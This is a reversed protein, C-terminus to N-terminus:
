YDREIANILKIENNIDNEEIKEDQVPNQENNNNNRRVFYRTISVADSLQVGFNNNMEELEKLVKPSLNLNKEKIKLFLKNSKSQESEYPLYRCVFKILLSALTENKLERQQEKEYFENLQNKFNTCFINSKFCNKVYFNSIDEWLNEEILEYISVLKNITLQNEGKFLPIIVQDLYLNSHLEIQNIKQNGQYKNSQILYLILKELNPLIENKLNKDNITELLFVKEEESLNEKKYIEIFKDFNETKTEKKYPDLYFEFYIQKESFLKKEMLIMNVLMKEITNLKFKIESYKSYDIKENEKNFINKFSYFSFLEEFSLIINDSVKFSFINDKSCLQIEKKKQIQKMINEIIIDNTNKNKSNNYSEIIKELYKNQINILRSYLKNISTKKEKNDNLICIAYSNGDIQAPELAKIRSIKAYSECFNKFRIDFINENNVDLNSNRRIEDLYYNITRTEAIERSIINKYEESFSNIFNNITEIHSLEEVENSELDFSIFAKLIPLDRKNYLYISDSLLKKNPYQSATLLYKLHYEKFDNEKTISTLINMEKKKFEQKNIQIKNSHEPQELIDRLQNIIIDKEKLCDFNKILKFLIDLTYNMFNDYDINKHNLFEILNKNFNILDSFLTKSTYNFDLSLKDETILGIKYEIFIQSLFMFKLFIDPFTKDDLIDNEMKLEGINDLKNLIKKLIFEEKFEDLLIGKLTCKGRIKIAKTNEIIDKQKKDFYIAFHNEREILIGKTGGIEKECKCKKKDIPLSEGLNYWRGCSCIYVPFVNSRKLYKDELYNKM